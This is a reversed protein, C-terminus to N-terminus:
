EGKNLLLRGPTLPVMRRRLGVWHRNAPLAIDKWMRGHTRANTPHLCRLRLLSNPKDPKCPITRVLMAINRNSRTIAMRWKWRRRNTASLLSGLMSLSLGDPFWWVICHSFCMNALVINGTWQFFELSWKYGRGSLFYSEKRSSSNHLLSWGIAKRVSLFSIVDIEEEVPVQM